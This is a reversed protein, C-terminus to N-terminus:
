YMQCHIEISKEVVKVNTEGFIGFLRDLLEKDAKVTMNRPYVKKQKESM